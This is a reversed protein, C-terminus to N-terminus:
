RKDDDTGGHIKTGINLYVGTPTIKENEKYNQDESDDLTNLTHIYSTNNKLKYVFRLGLENRRLEMPSDNAEIPM